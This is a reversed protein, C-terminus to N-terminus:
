MGLHQRQPALAAAITLSALGLWAMLLLGARWRRGIPSDQRRRDVFPVSILILAAVPVAVALAQIGWLNELTVLWLFAVPPRTVEAGPVPPYGLGRPWLLSASVVLASIWASHAGIMRFHDRFGAGDVEEEAWTRVGLARILFLHAGILVLLALPIVSAHLSYLRTLLPASTTFESTLVRGIPGLREATSVGHAMAEYGEQDYPLTTGTFFLTFLCGLLGVGIWWTVERPARYSGRYFVWSLHVFVSAMAGNASWWHLNRAFDGLPAREVIYVVSTHAGLPLPQYFQALWIGSVGALVISVLTLSGLFYPFRTAVPPISYDLANLALRDRLRFSRRVDSAGTDPRRNARM